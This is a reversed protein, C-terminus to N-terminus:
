RGMGSQGPDRPGALAVGCNLLRTFAVCPPAQRGDRFRDGSRIPHQEIRGFERAPSRFEVVDPGINFVKIARAEESPSLGAADRALAGSYRKGALVSDHPCTATALAPKGRVM